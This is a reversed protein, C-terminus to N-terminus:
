RKTIWAPIVIFLLKLGGWVALMLIMMIALTLMTLM